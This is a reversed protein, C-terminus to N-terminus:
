KESSVPLLPQCHNDSQTQHPAHLWGSWYANGRWSRVLLLQPCHCFKVCNEQAPADHVHTAGEEKEMSARKTCPVNSVHCRSVPIRSILKRGDKRRAHGKGPLCAWESAHTVSDTSTLGSPLLPIGHGLM